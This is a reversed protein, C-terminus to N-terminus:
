LDDEDDIANIMETEEFEDEDMFHYIDNLERDTFHEIEGTKQNVRMGLVRVLLAAQYPTLPLIQGSEDDFAVILQMATIDEIQKIQNNNAMYMIM